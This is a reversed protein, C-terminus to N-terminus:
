PSNGKQIAQVEELSHMVSQLESALKEDATVLDRFETEANVYALRAAEIREAMGLRRLAIYDAEARLREVAREAHSV